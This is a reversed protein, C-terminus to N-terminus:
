TATHLPEDDRWSGDITISTPSALPQWAPSVSEVTGDPLLRHHAAGPIMRRDLPNKARPNHYVDAGEIWSESYQEDVVVSYSKPVSANADHDIVLGSRVLRVRPSGFGAVVGIRNFKHVTGSNNFFVASVNEAGPAEFFSSPVEKDAWRHTSVKEAVITLSGDEAHKPHHRYGYLYTPLAGRSWAMSGQEHFDQIAFLLPTGSVHPLDWYRKPLKATLPGAYRIPLYENVYALLEEPADNPPTPIVRGAKDRTPGITTAEVAIKGSLGKAIFDPAPQSRDILYGLETLAAFLYLEWIRADFGETQFQEVFNGDTDEYWRMMQEIIGRAPSYGEETALRVFSPNLKDAPRVPTFFDVPKGVEDGQVREEDLNPVLAQVKLELDALAAGLSDFYRTMSIWRYQERLDRALIVASFQDDTDLLLTALIREDPTALWRLERAVLAVEPRRAYSALADFRVKSIEIM